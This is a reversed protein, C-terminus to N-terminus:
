RMRKHRRDSDGSDCAVGERLGVTMEVDTRNAGTLASLEGKIVPGNELGVGTVDECKVIGVAPRISTIIVAVNRQSRQSCGGGM